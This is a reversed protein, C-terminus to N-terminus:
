VAEVMGEIAPLCPLRAVTSVDSDNNYIRFVVVRGRSFVSRLASFIMHFDEFLDVSFETM